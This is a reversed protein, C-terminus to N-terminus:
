MPSLAQAFVTWVAKTIKLQPFRFDPERTKGIGGRARESGCGNRVLGPRSLFLGDGAPKGGKAQSKKSIM